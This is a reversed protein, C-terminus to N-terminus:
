AKAVCHGLARVMADWITEAMGEPLRCDQENIPLAACALWDHSELM